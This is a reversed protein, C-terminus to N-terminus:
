RITRCVAKATDTLMTSASSILALTGRQKLANQLDAEAAGAPGALDGLKEELARVVQGQEERPPIRPAGLRMAPGELRYPLPSLGRVPSGSKAHALEQRLGDRLENYYRVRDACAKLDPNVELCSEHIVWHVLREIDEDLRIRSTQLVNTWPDQAEMTRNARLLKVVQDLGPRALPTVTPPLGRSAAARALLEAEPAAPPGQRPAAAVACVLILVPLLPDELIGWWLELTFKV